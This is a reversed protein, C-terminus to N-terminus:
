APAVDVLAPYREVIPAEALDEVDRGAAQEGRDLLRAARIRRGVGSLLQSLEILKSVTFVPQDTVGQELDLALLVQRAHDEAHLRKAREPQSREVVAEAHRDGVRVVREIEDLLD